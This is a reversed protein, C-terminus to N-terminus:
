LAAGPIHLGLPGEIIQGTDRNKASFVIMCHARESLNISGALRWYLM